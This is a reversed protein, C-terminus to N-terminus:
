AHTRRRTWALLILAAVLLAVTGPEPVFAFMANAIIQHGASTPHVGDWFLFAQTCAGNTAGYVVDWGCPSSVDLLGYKSPDKVVDRFLETFDFVDVGPLADLMMIQGNIFNILDLFAQAQPPTIIGESVAAQFSPSLTVDPADWIVIRTAGWSILEQAMTALGGVIGTVGTSPSIDGSLISRLDNGGAGVVYLATPDFSGSAGGHTARFAALQEAASPPPVPPDTYPVVSAGGVAYNNGGAGSPVAAGAFGLASAFAAAWTDANTFRNSTVYPNQWPPVYVPTYPTAPYPVPSRLTAPNLLAANGMDTLSDGFFYVGSIPAANLTAVSFGVAAALIAQGVFRRVARM